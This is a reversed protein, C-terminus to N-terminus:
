LLTLLRVAHSVYDEDEHLAAFRSLTQVPTMPLDELVLRTAFKYLGPVFAVAIAM